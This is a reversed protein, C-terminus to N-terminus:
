SLSANHTRDYETIIDYFEDDPLLDEANVWRRGLFVQKSDIKSKLTKLCMNYRKRIDERKEYIGLVQRDVPNIEAVRRAAKYRPIPAFSRVRETTVDTM